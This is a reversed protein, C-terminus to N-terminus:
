GSNKSIQKYCNKARKKYIREIDWETEEVDIEVLYTWEM